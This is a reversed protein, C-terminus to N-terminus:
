AKRLSRLASPASYHRELAAKAAAQEATLKNTGSGRGLLQGAVYVGVTFSRAHQPGSAKLVQYVPTLGLQEQVIHQFRGKIDLYREQEIIVPLYKLVHREVLQKAEQYGQDLYVAAILAEFVSALIIERQKGTHEREGRSLYLCENMGLSRAISSLTQGKVLASCLDTLHGERDPYAHFLHETIILELVADGLFELRENHFLGFRQNENLYSRHVLAQRLLNKNRFTVGLRDDLERLDEGAM